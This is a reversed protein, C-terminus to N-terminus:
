IKLNDEYDKQENVQDSYECGLIDKKQQTYQNVKREEAKEVAEIDRQHQERLEKEKYDKEKQTGVDFCDIRNCMGRGFYDYNTLDVERGCNDCKITQKTKM